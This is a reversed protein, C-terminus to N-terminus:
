LSCKSNELLHWIASKKPAFFAKNEKHIQLIQHMSPAWMPTVLYMKTSFGNSTHLFYLACPIALLWEPLSFIAPTDFHKQAYHKPMKKTKKRVCYIALMAFHQGFTVCLLMKACGSGHFHGWILTHSFAKTRLTHADHHAFTSTHTVNASREAINLTWPTCFHNHAYRKRLEFTKPM